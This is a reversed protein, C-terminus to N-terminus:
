IIIPLHLNIECDMTWIVGFLMFMIDYVHYMGKSMTNM